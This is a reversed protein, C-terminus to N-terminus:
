AARGRAQMKEQKELHELYEKRLANSNAGTYYESNADKVMAELEALRSQFQSVSAGSPLITSAPHLERAISALWKLVTPDNGVMTGDATRGGMLRERVGEPAGTLMNQIANINPRFDSGWDSRLTDEAQQKFQADAEERANTVAQLEHHYAALVANYQDQSWNSKEAFGALRELGPKDADGFVVGTPPAMKEIYAEAKDPVGYATRWAQKDADTGKDPFPKPAERLEGSSMRQLLARHAKGFAAEDSYRSLVKEAFQKDDGAIKSRWDSAV